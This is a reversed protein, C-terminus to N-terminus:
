APVGTEHHERMLVTRATGFVNGVAFRPLMDDPKARQKVFHCAEFGRGGRRQEIIVGGSLIDRFGTALGAPRLIDFDPPVVDSIQNGALHQVNQVDGGGLEDSVSKRFTQVGRCEELVSGLHLQHRRLETSPSKSGAM